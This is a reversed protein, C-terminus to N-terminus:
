RTHSSLGSLCIIELKPHTTCIFDQRGAFNLYKVMDDSETVLGLKLNGKIKFLKNLHLQRTM